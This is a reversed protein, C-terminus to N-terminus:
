SSFNYSPLSIITSSMEAHHCFELAGYLEGIRWFQEITAVRRAYQFHIKASQKTTMDIYPTLVGLMKHPLEDGVSSSYIGFFTNVALQVRTSKGVTQKWFSSERERGQDWFLHNFSIKSCMFLTDKKQLLCCHNQCAGARVIMWAQTLKWLHAQM